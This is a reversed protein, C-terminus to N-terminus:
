DHNCEVLVTGSKDKWIREFNICMFCLGGGVMVPIGGKKMQTYPCHRSCNGNSDFEVKLKM